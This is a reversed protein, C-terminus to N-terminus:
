KGQLMVASREVRNLLHASVNVSHSGNLHHTVTSLQSATPGGGGGWQKLRSDFYFTVPVVGRNTGGGDKDSAAAHPSNSSM